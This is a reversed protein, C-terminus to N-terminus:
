EGSHAGGRRRSVVVVVVAAAAILVLAVIGASVAGVPRFEGEGNGDRRTPSPAPDSSSPASSSAASSGTVTFRRVVDARPDDPDAQYALRLEHAGPSVAQLPLRLTEGARLSFSTFISGSGVSGDSAVPREDLTLTFVAEALASGSSAVVVVDVVPGTVDAGEVPVTVALDARQHALAPAAALGLWGAAVLVLIWAHRRM